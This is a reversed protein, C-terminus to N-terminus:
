RISGRARDLPGIVVRWAGGGGALVEDSRADLDSNVGSIRRGASSPEIVLSSGRTCSRLGTINTTSTPATMVVIAQSMWSNPPWGSPPPLSGAQNVNVTVTQSHSVTTKAFRASASASPRPLAWAAVSRAMRLSVTALISSPEM